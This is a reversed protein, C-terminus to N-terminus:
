LLDFNFYLEVVTRAAKHGDPTTSVSIDL